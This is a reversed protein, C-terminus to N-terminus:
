SAAPNRGLTVRDRGDLDPRTSIEGFGATQFMAQIAAAQTPGHEFMLWGQPKLFTRARATVIRYAELGDGDDTLACRAEYSLEPVLAAMEDAAIYPPNSVILDFVGIVRDFWASQLFGVRTDLNLLRANRAAVELAPQSIDTGVGTAEPQAALLSLLICGSGTGIDLVREFPVDLAAQVLIETEPRPDLVDPGVCFSRGYFQRTGTLHSVPEHAARRKILALYTAQQAASVPDPMLLTLRAMPVDLVHALLRRADRAGDGQGAERLRMAGQALLDQARM